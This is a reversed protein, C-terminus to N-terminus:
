GATSEVPRTRGSVLTQLRLRTGWSLRSETNPTTTELARYTQGQVHLM